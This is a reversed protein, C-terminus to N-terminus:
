GMDSSGGHNSGYSGVAESAETKLASAVTSVKSKGQVYLDTATSKVTDYKDAVSDVFEGFKKKLNDAVDKSGDSLKKRTEEGKDPAFLIGLIAGTAAGALVGLLVKSGSKM